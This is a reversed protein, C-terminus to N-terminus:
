CSRPFVARTSGCGDGSLTRQIFSCGCNSASRRNCIRLSTCVAKFSQLCVIQQHDGDYLPIFVFQMFRSAMRLVHHMFTYLSTKQIKMPLWAAPINDMLLAQSLSHRKSTSCCDPAGKKIPSFYVVLLSKCGRTIHSLLWQLFYFLATDILHNSHHMFYPLRNHKNTQVDPLPLCIETNNEM